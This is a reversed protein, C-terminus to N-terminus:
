KASRKREGVAALESLEASTSTTGGGAGTAARGGDVRKCAVLRDSASALHTLTRGGQEHSNGGPNADSSPVM